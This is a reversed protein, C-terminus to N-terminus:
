EDDRFKFPRYKKNVEKARWYADQVARMVADRDDEDLDGGAFLGTITNVAEEAQRRGRSGYRQGAEEIFQDDKPAPAPTPAVNEEPVAAPAPLANERLLDDVTCGLYAAMKEYIDHTRPYRGEREYSVIARKNVGVAGALEEQTVKKAKRISKLNDGFYSM